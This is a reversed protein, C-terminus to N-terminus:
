GPSRPTGAGRITSREPRPSSVYRGSATSLTGGLGDMVLARLSASVTMNPARSSSNALVPTRALSTCHADQDDVAAEEENLGVSDSESM